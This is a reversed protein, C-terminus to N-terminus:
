ISAGDGSAESGSGVDGRKLVKWGSVMMKGDKLWATFPKCMLVSGDRYSTWELCGAFRGNGLPTFIHRVSGSTRCVAPVTTTEPRSPSIDNSAISLDPFPYCRWTGILHECDSTSPSGAVPAMARQSGAIDNSRVDNISLSGLGAIKEIIRCKMLADLYRGNPEANNISGFSVGHEPLQCLRSHFGPGHGFNDVVSVGRHVSQRLGTPFASLWKALDNGSMWLRHAGFGGEFRELDWETEEAKKLGQLTILPTYGELNTSPQLHKFVEVLDLKGYGPGYFTDYGPVGSSHSLIHGFTCKEEVVKDMLGFSPIAEKVPTDFGWSPNVEKLAHYMALATINKSNSALHFLTNPTVPKGTERDGLCVIEEKWGSETPRVLAIVCGPVGWEGMM